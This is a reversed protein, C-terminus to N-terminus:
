SEAQQWDTKTAIVHVQVSIQPRLSFLQEQQNSRVVHVLSTFKNYSYHSQYILTMLLTM